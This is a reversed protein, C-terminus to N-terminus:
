GEPATKARVRLGPQLQAQGEVVVQEAVGLGSAIEVLGSGRLGLQVSQRELRGQRVVLLWPQQADLDLVASTPVVLAGSRRRGFDSSTKSHPRTKTEPIAARHSDM